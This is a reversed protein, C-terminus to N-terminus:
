GCPELHGGLDGAFLIEISPLVDKRVAGAAPFRAPGPACGYTGLGFGLGLGLALTVAVAAVWTRGRLFQGGARAMRTMM